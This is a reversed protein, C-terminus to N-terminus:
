ECVGPHVIWRQTGVGGADCAQTIVLDRRGDGQLDLTTFEMQSEGDACYVVGGLRPLPEETEFVLDAYDPLSWTTPAGFGDDGGPHVIWRQTGVGGADCAQTVVLDPIRDGTIDTTTFEMQSEGDACYVVGGLRPLPEETEFVLDAYDPLSWTTPAGFGDDGGPHVIWRQTGVGGADCAQTVVLDLVRDGTIDTTTFEMQSEGDACYVVGGLRPLPEETEFVLDAYDPLSWTTPAGFGDDGGPHVIWRQTGVGGADCAQTVVLDPVGDGTIDTTTFEMQSEGDACYVVGGLRPLPEETEFVLDAYDPLSWTTPAGFGDDGGPHVIWRQTGVGGADCAQTVVLDPIRDGTIDTTTFEMQSEGDACYVAGGLRPLPEETEFVLDAYDPLSWTTPAGFGDDGGPHVIWRQTGVGGADCAQTVVLDPVGDGTIDTTTFEMQSEGDACYVVGGLRPLPEETEFVLDAYDPLSWVLPDAFGVADCLPEAGTEGGTEDSSDASTAGSSETDTPSTTSDDSPDTAASANSDGTGGSESGDTEDAPAGGGATCACLSALLLLSSLAPRAM